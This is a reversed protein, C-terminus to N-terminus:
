GVPTMVSSGTRLHGQGTGVGTCGHGYLAAHSDALVALLPTQDPVEPLGTVPHRLRSGVGATDAPSRGRFVSPTWSIPNLWDLETIDYLLTRSANGAECLHAVGGTLQWILWSDVTGVRVDM